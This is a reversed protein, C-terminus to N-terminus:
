TKEKEKNTQELGCSGNESDVVKSSVKEQIVIEYEKGFLKIVSKGDKDPKIVIREM